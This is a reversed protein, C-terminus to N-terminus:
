APSLIRVKSEQDRILRENASPCKDPRSTANVSATNCNQLDDPGRENAPLYVFSRRLNWGRGGRCHVDVSNM